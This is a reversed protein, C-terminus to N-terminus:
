LRDTETYIWRALTDLIIAASASHLDPNMQPGVVDFSFEEPVSSKVIANQYCCYPQNSVFLATGPKPNTQLWAIVTDQTNPRQLSLGVRKMPAKIFTVDLTRMAEPLNAEQWIIRAAEYETSCRETLADIRADLMRDGTLWVIQKFRVGEEWLTKLYQFRKEM